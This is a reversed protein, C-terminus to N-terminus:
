MCIDVKTTRPLGIVQGRRILFVDIGLPFRILCERATWFNAAVGIMRLELADQVGPGSLRLNEAPEDDDCRLVLTAGADPYELDGIRLVSLDTSVSNEFFLYDAAHAPRRRSGTRAMQAALAEDEAYYTVESDLLAAAVDILGGHGSERPEPLPQPRGPYSLAWMLALFVARTRHESETQVPVTQQVIM